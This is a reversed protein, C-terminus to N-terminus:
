SAHRPEKSSRPFRRYSQLRRRYRRMLKLSEDLNHYDSCRKDCRPNLCERRLLGTETSAIRSTTRNLLRVGLQEECTM